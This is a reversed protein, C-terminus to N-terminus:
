FIFGLVFNTLVYCSLLTLFVSPTKMSNNIFENRMELLTKQISQANVSSILKKPTSNNDKGNFFPKITKCIEPYIKEVVPAVHAVSFSFVTLKIFKQLLPKDHKCHTNKQDRAQLSSLVILVFFLFKKM